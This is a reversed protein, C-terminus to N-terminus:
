SSAGLGPGLELARSGLGSLMMALEGLVLAVACIGM